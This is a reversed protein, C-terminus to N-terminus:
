GRSGGPFDWAVRKYAQLPDPITMNGQLDLKSEDPCM